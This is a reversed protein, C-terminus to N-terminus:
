WHLQAAAARALATVGTGQLRLSAPGLSPPRAPTPSPSLAAAVSMDIDIADGADSDRSAAYWQHDAAPATTNSAGSGSASTPGGPKPAGGSLVPPHALRRESNGSSGAGAVGAKVPAPAMALPAGGRNGAPTSPVAYMLPQAAAVPVASTQPVSATPQTQQMMPHATLQMGPVGPVGFGHGYGYGYAQQHPMGSHLQSLQQSPAGGGPWWPPPMAAPMHTGGAAAAQAQMMPQQGSNAMAAQAQAQATQMQMWQMQLAMQAQQLAAWASASPGQLSSDIITSPTTADAPADQGAAANHAQSWAPQTAHAPLLRVAATAGDVVVSLGFADSQARAAAVSADAEEGGFRLRKGGVHAHTLASFPDAGSPPVSSSSSTPLFGGDGGAGSTGNGAGEGERPPTVAPRPNMMADITSAVSSSVASAVAARSGSKFGHLRSATGPLQQQSQFPSARMPTRAVASRVPTAAIGRARPTPPPQQQYLAAQQERQQMAAAAAATAAAIVADIGETGATSRLRNVGTALSPMPFSSSSSLVHGSPGTRSSMATGIAAGARVLSGGLVSRGTAGAAASSAGSGAAATSPRPSAQSYFSSSQYTFPADGIGGGSFRLHGDGNSSVAGASAQAPARPAPVRFGDGDVGASGMADDSHDSLDAGFLSHSQPQPAEFALARKVGTTGTAGAASGGTGRFGTFQRGDSTGLLRHQQHRPSGGSAPERGNGEGSGAEGDHVHVPSGENFFSIVGSDASDRDDGGVSGTTSVATMVQATLPRHTGAAAAGFSGAFGGARAKAMALSMETGFAKSSAIPGAASLELQSRPVSAQQQPHQYSAPAGSAPLGTPPRWSPALSSAHGSGGATSAAQPSPSPADDFGSFLADIDFGGGGSRATTGSGTSGPAAATGIAGARSPGDAGTMQSPSLRSRKPAPHGGSLVATVDGTGATGEALSPTHADGFASLRGSSGSSSGTFCAGGSAGGKGSDPTRTDGDDAHSVDALRRKLPTIMAPGGDGGGGSRGLLPHASGLAHSGGNSSTAGTGLRALPPQSPRSTAAAALSLSRRLTATGCEHGCAAKNRCNHTCITVAALAATGGTVHHTSALANQSAGTGVALAGSGATHHTLAVDKVPSPTQPTMSSLLQLQPQALSDDLSVVALDMGCGGGSSQGGGSGVSGLAAGSAAGRHGPSPVVLGSIRSGATATLAAAAVAAATQTPAKLIGRLTAGGPVATGPRGTGVRSAPSSGADGLGAASSVGDADSSGSASLVRGLSQQQTSGTSTAVGGIASQAGSALSAAPEPEDSFFDWGALALSAEADAASQAQAKKGTAAKGSVPAAAAGKAMGGEQDDGEAGEPASATDAAGKGAGGAAGATRGSKRADHAHIVALLSQSRGSPMAAPAVAPKPLPQATAVAAQLVPAARAPAYAPAPVPKAALPAQGAAALTSSGGGGGGGGGIGPTAQAQARSQALRALAAQRREEVAAATANASASGSSAVPAVAAPKSAATADGARATAAAGAERGFDSDEDDSDDLGVLLSRRPVPASPATTAVASAATVVYAAAPLMAEAQWYKNPAPKAAPAVSAAGGGGAGGSAAPAPVTRAAYFRDHGGAEDGTLEALWCDWAFDREARSIGPANMEAELAEVRSMGALSEADPRQPRVSAAAAEKAEHQRLAEDVYASLASDTGATPAPRASGAAGGVAAVQASGAKSNNDGDDDNVLAILAGDDKAVVSGPRSAAAAAAVQTAQAGRKPPPKLVDGTRRQRSGSEEEPDLRLPDHAALAGGRSSHVVSTGALLPAIPSASLSYGGGDPGAGSGGASAPARNGLVDGIGNIGGGDAGLGFAALDGDVDMLGYTDGAADGDVDMGGLDLDGSYGHGEHGAGGADDDADVHMAGGASAGGSSIAAVITVTAAGSAPAASAVVAAALAVGGSGAAAAAATARGAVSAAMRQAGLSRILTSDNVGLGRPVPGYGYVPQFTIRCDLGNSFAHLLHIQVLPGREPRPVTVTLTQPGAIGGQWHALGGVGDPTTVALSYSHVLDPLAAKVAPPLPGAVPALILQQAGASAGDPSGGEASGMAASGEGAGPASVALYNRMSTQLKAQKAGRGKGAGGGAAAAGGGGVAASLPAVWGAPPKAQSIEIRLVAVGPGTGTQTVGGAARIELPPLLACAAAKLHAGWPHAKRAAEQLAAPTAAARQLSSLSDVGIAALSTLAAETVGLGEFQLLQRPGSADPWLQRALCRHAASAVTVLPSKVEPAACYQVFAKCVRTLLEVTSSVEMRLSYAGPGTVGLSDLKLRGLGIQLLQFAKDPVSSVTGEKGRKVRVRGAKEKVERLAQLPALPPLILHSTARPHHTHIQSM